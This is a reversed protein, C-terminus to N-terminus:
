WLWRSKAQPTTSMIVTYRSDDQSRERGSDYDYVVYMGADKDYLLMAGARPNDSLYQEYEAIAENM